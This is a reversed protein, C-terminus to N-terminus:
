RHMSSAIEQQCEASWKHRGYADAYENKFNEKFERALMQSKEAGDAMKTYMYGLLSPIEKKGLDEGNYHATILFTGDRDKVISAQVNNPMTDIHPHMEAETTNSQQPQQQQPLEIPDAIAVRNGDIILQPLVDELKEKPFAIKGDPQLVPQNLVKALQEVDNAYAEYGDKTRFLIITDPHKEKIAEYQQPPMSQQVQQKKGQQQEMQVDMADLHSTILNSANRVDTLITKLIAPNEKLVNIWSNLYKASDDKLHKTIGYHSTTYAATLEARLEEIAYNKPNRSESASFRDFNEKRGTSHAMEHFATSVFLEGDKFQAKEPLCIKDYSISFYAKNGPQLEIPVIWKQQSILEDLQPLSFMKSPDREVKQPLADALLKRYLEPRANALNTQDINFVNYIHTKPFVMYNNQEEKSFKKYDEYSIRENTEKDVVTFTTKMVAMSKEGRNVMVREQEDTHKSNLETIRNFTAYVPIKYGEKETHMMLMLSNMGGYERGDLNRPQVAAEPSIWPKEWQEGNKSNRIEEIKSIMLDAFRCLVKDEAPNNNWKNTQEM